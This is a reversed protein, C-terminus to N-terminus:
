TILGQMSCGLWTGSHFISQIADGQAAATLQIFSIDALCVSYQLRKKNGCQAGRLDLCPLLHGGVSRDFNCCYSLSLIVDGDVPLACHNWATGIRSAPIM